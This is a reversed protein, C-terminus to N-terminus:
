TEKREGRKMWTFGVSRVGTVGGCGCQLFLMERERQENGYGDEM